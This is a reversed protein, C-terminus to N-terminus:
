QRIIPAPPTGDPRLNDPPPAPPEPASQQAPAPSTPTPDPQSMAPSPPQPPMDPITPIVGYGDFRLVPATIKGGFGNVFEDAGEVYVRWSLKMDPPNSDKLILMVHEGLGVSYSATHEDIMHEFSMSGFGSIKRLTGDGMNVWLNAPDLMGYQGKYKYPNKSLETPDFITTYAHDEDTSTQFVGPWLFAVVGLIVVAIAIFAVSLAIIKLLRKM